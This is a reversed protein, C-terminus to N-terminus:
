CCGHKARRDHIRDTTGHRPFRNDAGINCGVCQGIQRRGAHHAAREDDDALVIALARADDLFAGMSVRHFRRQPQHVRPRVQRCDDIADLARELQRLRRIRRDHQFQPDAGTVHLARELGLVIYRRVDRGTRKDSFRRRVVVLLERMRGDGVCVLFLLIIHAHRRRTGEDFVMMEVLVKIALMAADPDDYLAPDEVTQDARQLLDTKRILESSGLHRHQAEVDDIRQHWLFDLPKRSALFRDQDDLFSLGFIDLM